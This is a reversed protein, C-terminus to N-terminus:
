TLVEDVAQVQEDVMPRAPMSMTDTQNIWEALFDIARVTKKVCLAHHRSCYSSSGDKTRGCFVWPAEQTLPYRCQSYDMDALKPM